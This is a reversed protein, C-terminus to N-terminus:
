GTAADLPEPARRTSSVEVRRDPVAAGADAVVESVLTGAIGIRGQELASRTFGVTQMTQFLFEVAIVVTNECSLNSVWSNLLRMGSNLASVRGAVM